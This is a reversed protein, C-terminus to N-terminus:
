IKSIKRGFKKHNMEVMLNLFTSQVFIFVTSMKITSYVKFNLFPFRAHPTGKPDPGMSKSFHTRLGLSQSEAKSQVSPPNRDSEIKVKSLVDGNNM